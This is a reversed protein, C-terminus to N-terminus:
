LLKNGGRDGKDSIVAVEGMSEFCVSSKEKEQIASVVHNQCPEPSVVGLHLM